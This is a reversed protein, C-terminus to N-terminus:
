LVGELIAFIAFHWGQVGVSRLHAVEEFFDSFHEPM